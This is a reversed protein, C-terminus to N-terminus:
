DDGLTRHHAKGNLHRSVQSNHVGFRAAIDSQLWGEARLRQMEALIAPTVKSIGDAANQRRPQWELHDPNVCLPTECLHAADHGDPRPGHKWECMVVHIRGGLKENFGYGMSAGYPWITCESM